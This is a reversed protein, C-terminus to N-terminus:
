QYSSAIQNSLNIDQASVSRLISIAFVAVYFGIYSLKM